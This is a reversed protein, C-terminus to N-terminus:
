VEYHDGYKDNIADIADVSLIIKKKNILSLINIAHAPLFDINPINRGSKYMNADITESLLVAHNFNCNNMFTIFNKTKMENASLNDVIMVSGDRLKQSLLIKVGLAVKKKPMSYSYDSGDPGHAVAGHYHHPAGKRGIRARGTRKQQRLKKNSFNLDSRSKTAATTIGRKNGRAHEYCEHLVTKKFPVDFIEKDLDISSVVQGAQNIVNVKLLEKNLQEKM